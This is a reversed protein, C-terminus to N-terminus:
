KHAFYFTIPKKSDLKAFGIRYFQVLEGIKLKKVAPEALAAIEKGNPMVIKIKINPESVWHIKPLSHDVQKSLFKANKALLVNALEMLRVPKGKYKQLDEKEVFIKNLNVKIRRKGRQKFDPHYFAEVQKIKPADKIKISVPNIVAFYRNAKKDILKRNERYLIEAPLEVDALSLGMKKIFSRIAEPQIGRKRLSLLSWTRPDHWGRLKGQAIEKRAQSKSLKAEKISLIGFHIFLPKNKIGLKDWIFEEVMDEIVLDKGRIIHTIGLLYDDVAWSFELMPWVKYKKGVRPHKRNSIRALVRDRFAPNPHKMDTKLRLVAQKPKYRGALMKQWKKLNEEISQQRHKCAIGNKRNLRLTQEDCNCVYALGKKILKEAWEYFIHMRDSKYFIKDIKVKLWKLDELIMKYAQKEPYKEESGITDDFVLYLKGDYKKAYEDNLIVMRANGIHLPGSPYPALRLVVKGKKAKPLAPLKEVYKQKKRKLEKQEVIRKQQEYSLKNVEEVIRKTLEVVEKIKQRLEPKEAIVKGIVASANAKGEHEVANLLAHKEILSKLDKRKM